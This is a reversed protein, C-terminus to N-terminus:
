KAIRPAKTRTGESDVVVASAQGARGIEFELTMELFKMFFRTESEPYIRARFTDRVEAFLNTGDRRIRFVITPSYQYDGVLRDLLDPSIAVVPPWAARPLPVAPDLLHFGIEDVGVDSNTLVVVALHRDPDLGAWARYGGTGGNHWLVVHGGPTRRRDWALRTLDLGDKNPDGHTLALTKGLPASAPDLHAALFRVVDSATSKLAGAGALADFTWNAVVTGDDDHGPALRARLAPTLTTASDHMGLPALVRTRLLTEYDVGAKRSLALGLLAAGLNSYEERTGVDRTLSYRSLFRYLADTHYDAYPNAPDNPKFNDPMAPLGSTHTALHRLTIPGGRQPLRIGPLLDAVPEDLTVEGSVVMAALASSTFVKTLSGIEFVSDADLRVGPAREGAAAFRAHGDADVVGIVMGAFRHGAREGAIRQLVDDAPLAQPTLHARPQPAPDPKSRCSGGFLLLGALLIGAVRGRRRSLPTM